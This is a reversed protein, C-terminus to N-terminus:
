ARGTYRLKDQMELVKQTEKIENQFAGFARKLNELHKELVYKTQKKRDKQSKKKVFILEYILTLVLITILCSLSTLLTNFELYDIDALYAPLLMFLGCVAYLFIQASM